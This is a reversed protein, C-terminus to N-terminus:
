YLAVINSAATGTSMVQKVSVDLVTGAPVAAFSVPSADDALIVRLAGASGIYLGRTKKLVTSDSPTVSVGKLFPRTPGAGTAM